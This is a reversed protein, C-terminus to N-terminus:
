WIGAEPIRDRLWRRLLAKKNENQGENRLLRRFEMIELYYTIAKNIIWNRKRWTRQCEKDLKELLEKDIKLSIPKQTIM